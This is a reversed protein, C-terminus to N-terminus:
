SQNRAAARRKGRPSIPKPNRQAKDYFERYSHPHIHAIDGVFPKRPIWSGPAAKRVPM